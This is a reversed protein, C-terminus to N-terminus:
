FLAHRQNNTTPIKWKGMIIIAKFLYCIEIIEKEEDAKRNKIENSSQWRWKLYLRKWQTWTVWSKKMVEKNKENQYSINVDENVPQKM